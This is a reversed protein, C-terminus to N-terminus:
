ELFSIGELKTELDKKEKRLDGLEGDTKQTGESRKKAGRRCVELEM